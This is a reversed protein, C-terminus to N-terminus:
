VLAFSTEPKRGVTLRGAITVHCDGPSLSLLYLSGCLNLQKTIVPITPIHGDPEGLVVLHPVVQDHGAGHQVLCSGELVNNAMNTRQLTQPLRPWDM